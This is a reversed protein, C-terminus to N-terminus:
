VETSSIIEGGYDFEIAESHGRMSELMEYCVERKKVVCVPFLLEGNCWICLAYGRWSLWAKGRVLWVRHMQIQCKAITLEYETTRFWSRIRYRLRGSQWNIAVEEYYRHLWLGVIALIAAFAALPYSFDRAMGPLISYTAIWFGIAAVVLVGSMALAKSASEHGKNRLVIEDGRHVVTAHFPPWKHGLRDLSVSPRCLDLPHSPEANPNTHTPEPM